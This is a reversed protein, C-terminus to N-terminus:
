GELIDEIKKLSQHLERLNASIKIMLALVAEAYPAVAHYSRLLSMEREKVGEPFALEKLCQLAVEEPNSTPDLTLSHSEVAEAFEAIALFLQEDLLNDTRLFEEVEEKVERLGGVDGGTKAIQRLTDEFADLDENYLYRQLQQSLMPM